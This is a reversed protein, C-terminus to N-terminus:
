RYVAEEVTLRCGVARQDPDAVFLTFHGPSNPALVEGEVFGVDSNVFHNAQDYLNASLKVLLMSETPSTNVVQGIFKMRMGDRECHWDEDALRIFGIADPRSFTPTPRVLSSRVVQFAGVFMAFSMCVSLWVWPAVKLADEVISVGVTLPDRRM